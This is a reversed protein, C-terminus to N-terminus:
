RQLLKRECFAAFSQYETFARVMQQGDAYRANSAIFPNVDPFTGCAIFHWDPLAFAAGYLENIDEIGKSEIMKRALVDFDIDNAM